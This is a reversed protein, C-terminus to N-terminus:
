WVGFYIFFYVNKSSNPANEGYKGGWSESRGCIHIKEYLEGKYKKQFIHIKEYPGGQIKKFFIFKKM